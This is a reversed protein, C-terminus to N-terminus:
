TLLVALGDMFGDAPAACDGVRCGPFCTDALGDTFGPSSLVFAGTESVFGSFVFFGSSICFVCSGSVGNTDKPGSSVFGDAVGFTVFSGAPFDEAAGPCVSSGDPSGDAVGSAVCAAPGVTFGDNVGAASGVSSGASEGAAISSVM